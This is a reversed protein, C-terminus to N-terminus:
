SYTIADKNPNEYQFGVSLKQPNEKKLRVENWNYRYM